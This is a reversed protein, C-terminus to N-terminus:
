NTKISDTIDERTINIDSPTNAQPHGFFDKPYKITMTPDCITYINKEKKPSGSLCVNCGIPKDGNYKRIHLSYILIMIMVMLDSVHDPYWVCIIHKM